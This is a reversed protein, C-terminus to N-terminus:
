SRSVKNGKQQYALLGTCCSNGDTPWSTECVWVDMGFYDSLGGAKNVAYESATTCQGRSRLLCEVEFGEYFPNLNLCIFDIARSLPQILRPYHFQTNVTFTSSWQKIGVSVMHRRHDCSTQLRKKASYGESQKYLKYSDRYQVAM